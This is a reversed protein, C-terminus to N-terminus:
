TGSFASLNSVNSLGSKPRDLHLLNDFGTSLLSDRASHERQIRELERAQLEHMRSEESDTQSLGIMQDSQESQQRQSEGTTLDKLHEEIRTDIFDTEHLASAEDPRSAEINDSVSQDLESTQAVSDREAGGTFQPEFTDRQHGFVGPPPTRAIRDGGSPLDGKELEALRPSRCAFGPSEPHRLKSKETSLMTSIDSEGCSEDTMVPTAKHTLPDYRESSLINLKNLSRRARARFRKIPTVTSSAAKQKSASRTQYYSM